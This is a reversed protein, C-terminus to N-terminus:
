HSSILVTKGHAVLYGLIAENWIRQGVHADVASLPDDLLYIDADNYLARALSIRARQGGSLTVGRGGVETKDGAPFIDFDPLLCCIDVIHDYKEKDYPKYFCINEQVTASFIPSNQPCYAISGGLRIFIKSDDCLEDLKDVYDFYMQDSKEANQLGVVKM